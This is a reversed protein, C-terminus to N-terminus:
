NQKRKIRGTGKCGTCNRGQFVKTGNCLTCKLGQIKNMLHNYFDDVRKEERSQPRQVDKLAEVQGLLWTIDRSYITAPVTEGHVKCRKLNREIRKLQESM